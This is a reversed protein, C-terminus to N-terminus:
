VRSTLSPRAGIELRSSSGACRRTRSSLLGEVLGLRALAEVVSPNVTNGRFERDFDKHAELLTVRVGRRALLLALVAGAPGGGVVCCDTEEIAGAPMRAHREETTTSTTLTSDERSNACRQHGNRM